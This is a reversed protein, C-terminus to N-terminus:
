IYVYIYVYMYITCICTYLIYMFYDLDYICSVVLSQPLPPNTAANSPPLDKHKYAYYCATLLHTFSHITTTYLLLVLLCYEPVTNTSSSLSMCVCVCVFPYVSLYVCLCAYLCVCLCVYLVVSM